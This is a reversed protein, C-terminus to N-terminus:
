QVSLTRAMNSLSTLFHSYVFGHQVSEKRIQVTRVEQCSVVEGQDVKLEM